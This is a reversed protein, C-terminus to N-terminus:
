KKSREKLIKKAIKVDDWPHETTGYCMSQEHGKGFIGVVDGPRALEKLAFRIASERDVISTIKHHHDTLQEKMQRIIAWPNETRPDEATLVVLDALETGIRGMVPRKARDRLGASGYVAILRGTKKKILPRLSKLAAELGQPTHAFDVVVKFPKDAIFEMRGPIGPFAKIGAIFDQNSVGILQAMKYVLRANAQNYEEPFAKAITNKVQYYLRDDSSYTLFRQQQARLIRKVMPASQDDENIVAIQASTLNLCKAEIYHRYSLHYDLHEPSINTLGAIKPHVGWTRFQYVGHSTVELVVYEIGEEVMQAFLQHLQGPDPSTVHFGTDITQDNIYAAVTSLLAVKYGAAKLVHYLLTSSTTKGDTGTITLIKLKRAPYGLRRQTRWGRHLGTKFFHYPRKLRYILAKILM